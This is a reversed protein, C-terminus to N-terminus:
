VVTLTRPFASMIELGSETMLISDIYAVGASGGWDKGGLDFVNEYNSVMGPQYVLTPYSPAGWWKHGVWDPPIAIGLNYVGAFWLKDNLGVGELYGTVIEKLRDGDDGPRMERRAEEISGAATELAEHWRQDVDGVAFTREIDVHYRYYSACYDIVVLDGAEVRYDSPVCHHLDGRRQGARVLTRLAAPEGGECAMANHAVGEIEKESMGSQLTEKIASMGADGIRASKRMVEIERPSK